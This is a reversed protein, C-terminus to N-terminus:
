KTAATQDESQGPAPEGLAAQSPPRGSFDDTRGPKPQPAVGEELLNERPSKAAAPRQKATAAGLLETGGDLAPDNLSIPDTRVIIVPAPLLPGIFAAGSNRPLAAIAPSGTENLLQRLPKEIYFAAKRKGAKSFSIGDSGRLRSPLGNMDPGMQQFAGNEDVFGDWIDVFSGGAAEINRRYIDNFALMSATMQSSRLAPQGVWVAPAGGAKLAGAMARVRKEYEQSWAPTGITVREDGVLIQQRDNTGLMVIIASPKIESIIAPLNAPWDYFDGRVFGSSGNWKEVIKVNASDQFAEILGEAVAGAMFDGVVLVTKANELKVAPAAPPEATDFRLGQVPESVANGRVARKAVQRVAPTKRRQASKVPPLSKKVRKVRKVAKVPPIDPRARRFGFFELISPSRSIREQAVAVSVPNWAPLAFVAAMAVCLAKFARSASQQPQPLRPELESNAACTASCNWARM